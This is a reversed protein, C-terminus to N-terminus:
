RYCRLKCNGHSDSSDWRLVKVSKSSVTEFFQRINHLLTESALAVIFSLIAPVCEETLLNGEQIRNVSETSESSKLAIWHLGCCTGVTDAVVVPVCSMIYDTWHEQCLVIGYRCLFTSKRVCYLRPEATCVPASGARYLVRDLTRDSEWEDTVRESSGSLLRM